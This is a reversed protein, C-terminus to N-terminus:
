YESHRHSLNTIFNVAFSLFPCFPYFLLSYISNVKEDTELLKRSVLGSILPNFKQTKKGARVSFGLTSLEIRDQGVMLILPNCLMEQLGKKKIEVRSMPKSHGGIIM